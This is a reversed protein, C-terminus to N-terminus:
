HERTFKSCIKLAGNGLFVDARTNRHTNRTYGVDPNKKAEVRCYREQLYSCKKIIKVRFNINLGLYAIIKSGHFVSRAKPM